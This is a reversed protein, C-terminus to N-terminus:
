IRCKQTRTNDISQLNLQVSGYYEVYHLYYSLLRRRRMRTEVGYRRSEIKLDKIKSLDSEHVVLELRVLLTAASNPRCPIGGDAELSM